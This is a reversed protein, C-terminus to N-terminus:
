AVEEENTGNEDLAILLDFLQSVNLDDISQDDDISESISAKIRVGGDRYIRTIQDYDGVPSDLEIFTHDESTEHELIHRIGQILLRKTSSINGGAENTIRQIESKDYNM